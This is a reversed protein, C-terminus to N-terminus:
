GQSLKVVNKIRDIIKLRGASDFEAVDGTHMWGESDITKATNVPDHLYGPTINEGRLCLEGRPNPKDNSTYGMEPVDMLVAENCPQLPGCTGVADVDWAIGKSCTGVTETMGFGQIADTAFAVKIMQHVDGALPASGSSLFM